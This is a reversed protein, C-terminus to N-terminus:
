KRGRRSSGTGGGSGSVYVKSGGDMYFRGGRPGTQIMRGGGAGKPTARAPRVQEYSTGFRGQKLKVGLREREAAGAAKIRSGAASMTKPKIFIREKTQRRTRPNEEGSPVLKSKYGAQKRFAADVHERAISARRHVGSAVQAKKSGWGESRRRNRTVNARSRTLGLRASSKGIREASATRLGREMHKKVWADSVGHKKKM